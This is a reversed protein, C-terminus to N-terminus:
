SVRSASACDSRAFIREVLPADSRLDRLPVAVFAHAAGRWPATMAVYDLPRRRAERAAHPAFRRGESLRRVQLTYLSNLYEAQGKVTLLVDM